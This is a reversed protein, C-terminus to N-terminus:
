NLKKVFELKIQLLFMNKCVFLECLFHQASNRKLKIQMKKEDLCYTYVCVCVCVCVCV